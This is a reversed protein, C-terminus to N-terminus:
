QYDFHEGEHLSLFLDKSEDYHLWTHVPLRAPMIDKSLWAETIGLRIVHSISHVLNIITIPSSYRANTSLQSVTRAFFRAWYQYIISAARIITDIIVPVADIVFITVIVVIFIIFRDIFLHPAQSLFGPYYLRRTM